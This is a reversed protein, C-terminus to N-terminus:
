IYDDGEGDEDDEANQMRLGKLRLPGRFDLSEPGWANHVASYCGPGGGKFVARQGLMSFNLMLCIGTGCSTESGLLWLNWLYTWLKRVEVGSRGNYEKFMSTAINFCVDTSSSYNGSNGLMLVMSVM